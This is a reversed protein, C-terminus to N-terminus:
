QGLVCIEFLYQLFCCYDIGGYGVWGVVFGDDGYEGWQVIGFVFYYVYQVVIGFEMCWVEEIM